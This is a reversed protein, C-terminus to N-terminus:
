YEVKGELNNWLVFANLAEERLQQQMPIIRQAPPLM